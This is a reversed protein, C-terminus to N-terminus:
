WARTTCRGRVTPLSLQFEIEGVISDPESGVKDVNVIEISIGTLVIGEEDRFMDMASEVAKRVVKEADNMTKLLRKRKM